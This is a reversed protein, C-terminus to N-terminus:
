KSAANGDRHITASDIRRDDVIRIMLQFASLSQHVRLIVLCNRFWYVGFYTGCVIHLYTDSLKKIECFFVM